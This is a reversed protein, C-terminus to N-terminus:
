WPGPAVACSAPPSAHVLPVLGVREGVSVEVLCGVPQRGTVARARRRRTVLRGAARDGLAPPGGPDPVPQCQGRDVVASPGTGSGGLSPFHVGGGGPRVRVPDRRDHPVVAHGPQDRELEHRARMQQMQAVGLVRGAVGAALEHRHVRGVLLLQVEDQALEAREQVAEVPRVDEGVQAPVVSRQVDAVACEGAGEDDVLAAREDRGDAVALAGQHRVLPLRGEMHGVPHGQGGEQFRLQRCAVRGRDAIQRVADLLRQVEGVAAPHVDAGVGTVAAPHDELLPARVGPQGGVPGVGDGPQFPLLGRQLPQGPQADDGLHAVPEGEAVM